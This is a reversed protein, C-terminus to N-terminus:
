ADRGGTRADLAYLTYGDELYVIGGAVVPTSLAFISPAAWRMSGDDLRHVQAQGGTVLYLSGDVVQPAPLM